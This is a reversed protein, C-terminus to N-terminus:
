SSLYLRIEWYAGILYLFRKLSVQFNCTRIHPIKSYKLNSRRSPYNYSWSLGTIVVEVPTIKVRDLLSYFGFYRKKLLTKQNHAHGSFTIKFCCTNKKKKKKKREEVHTSSDHSLSLNIPMYRSPIALSGASFLM